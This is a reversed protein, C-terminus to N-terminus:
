AADPSLIPESRRISRRVRIPGSSKLLAKRITGCFAVEHNAQKVAMKLCQHQSELM